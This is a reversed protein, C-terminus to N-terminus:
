GNSKETVCCCYCCSCSLRTRPTLIASSSHLHCLQDLHHHHHHCHTGLTLHIVLSVLSIAGSKCGIIICISSTSTVALATQDQNCIVVFVNSICYLHHTHTRNQIVLMKGRQILERCHPKSKVRVLQMKRNTATRTGVGGLRLWVDCGDCCCVLFWDDHLRTHEVRAQIELM